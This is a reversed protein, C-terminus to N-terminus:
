IIGPQSTAIQATRIGAATTQMCVYKSRISPLPGPQTLLITARTGDETLPGAAVQKGNLLITSHGPSIPVLVSLEIGAPPLTVTTQTPKLDIAIPGTLPPSQAARGPWVRWIPVCPQPTSAPPPPIFAWSRKWSGHPPAPRGATRWRSLTALAATPRYRSTRTALPGTHTTPRGSAPQARTSWAEGTSAFGISPRRATAQPQWPPSSTPTTSPRSPRSASPPTRPTPSCRPARCPPASPRRPRAPSSPWATSRGAAASPEPQRISCIPSHPPLSNRPPRIANPPQPTTAWNVCFSHERM